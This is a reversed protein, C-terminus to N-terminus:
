RGAETALSEWLDSRGRARLWEELGQVSLGVGRAATIPRYHMQVMREVKAERADDAEQIQDPTM